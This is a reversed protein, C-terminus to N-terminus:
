PAAPSVPSGSVNEQDRTKLEHQLVVFPYGWIALPANEEGPPMRSRYRAMRARIPEGIRPRGRRSPRSLIKGLMQHRPTMDHPPVPMTRVADQLAPPFEPHNPWFAAAAEPDKRLTEISADKKLAGCYPDALWVTKATRIECLTHPSEDTAPDRLQILVADMGAQYALSSLLWAQRDCFGYRRQWIDTPWAPPCEPPERPSIRKRVARFLAEPPAISPDAAGLIEHALRHLEAARRWAAFDHASFATTTFFPPLIGHEKAFGLLRAESPPATEVMELMRGALAIAGDTQGATVMQWWRDGVSDGWKWEGDAQGQAPLALLCLLLGWGCVPNPKTCDGM